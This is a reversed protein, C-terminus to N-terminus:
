TYPRLRYNVVFSQYGLRSLEKAVPTGENRDSRYQFGGGACILVAGKIKTGEPVPFTVVYPRFDPDDAYSGDNQTYETTSPMNNEEWLYLTQGNKPDAVCNLVTDRSEEPIMEERNLASNQSQEVVTNDSNSIIDKMGDSDKRCAALTLMLAILALLMATLKKLTNVLGKGTSPATM